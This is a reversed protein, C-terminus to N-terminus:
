VEIQGELTSNRTKEDNLINTMKAIVDTTYYIENNIELNSKSPESSKSPETIFLESKVDKDQFSIMKDIDKKLFSINTEKDLIKNSLLGIENQLREIVSRDISLKNDLQTQLKYIKKEAEFKDEALKDIKELLRNNEERL